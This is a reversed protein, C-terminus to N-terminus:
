DIIINKNRLLCLTIKGSSAM